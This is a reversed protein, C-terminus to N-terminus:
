PLQLRSGCVVATRPNAAVDSAFSRTGGGLRGCERAIARQLHKGGTSYGDVRYDLRMARLTRGHERTDCRTDEHAGMGTRCNPQSRRGLCYCAMCVANRGQVQAWGTLGRKVSHRRMQDGTYSPLYVEPLPRPGVLRMDGRLVNFFQPLEDLSTRRLWRGLPTVRQADPLSGGHHGAWKEMTRLKYLVFPAGGMGTRNQRFLVPWGMRLLVALAAAVLVPALLILVVPSGALDIARKL